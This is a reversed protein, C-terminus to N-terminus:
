IVLIDDRDPGVSLLDLSAGSEKRIFDLLDLLKQPLAGKERAKGLPSLWGPFEKYVPTVNKLVVPDMVATTLETGPTLELAGVRYAPGDYRYATAIRITECGDLVDLKTLAISNAGNRLAYRFLPLDFWGTRRPRGTTAGYEFGALRMGVGQEMEDKANVSAGPYKKAEEEKTATSCWAASETGGLETPFPGEGVRTMYPFKAVGISVDVDDPRLGVGKALGEISCDSSTVYPYTGYDVSLLHGQAGELLIRKGAAKAEQLLADTDIIRNAFTKAYRGYEAIIAEIAFIEKEDYYKGGGLADSMMVEKVHAPDFAEFLNKRAAFTRTLKRRFEEPNLLDNAFLGQRALYDEYCPGIGRGTTGIKGKAARKERLRDLAIHFPLVLHARHSIRLGEHPHREADLVALEDAVVSPALAVGSGIVNLKGEADYLIGCPVLHFAHSEGNLVITHGANAGGTGRAIVDAWGALRDVIGGKGTDGFQLDVVAVVKAERAALFEGLRARVDAM